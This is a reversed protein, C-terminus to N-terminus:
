RRLWDRRPEIWQSRPERYAPRAPGALDAPTEPASQVPGAQPSFVRRLPLQSVELELDFGMAELGLLAAYAMVACDLPENRLGATKLKWARRLRGKRDTTIEIKEAVLGRCFREDVTMPLHVYGPGPEAIGLRGYIREKAPDVRIPWLPVKRTVKSAHRPWVEGAGAQGKIAFIFARGGDPTPLRFRPGCYDYAAQTHHGGTDVCAGRIFEVGGRERPWTRRLYVDLADWTAPTAPDGHIVQHELLWSEKGTGWAYASVELRAPAEQVDVGATLLACPSPVEPVGGIQIRVERRALLGTEDLSHYQEEWWEALVTNKFVKLLEPHGQAEYWQRVMPALKRGIVAMAPLRFGRWGTCPATPRYKGRRIAEWRQRDEWSEGCSDCVYVASAFVPEGAGDKQWQVQPWRLAQEHGCRFCAVEYECRDTMEWLGDSRGGKYGPSTVTVKRANWFASTRVEALKVPDGETGASPPYRDVEDFLVVRVPRMALGAASNAGVLTIHGGPFVKHRITNGSDRSRVDSVKLGSALIMPALRDKSLAEAMEVNPEVVLIPSPEHDIYYGAAVLLLETKGAGQSCGIYVVGEVEPDTIADLVERQYPKSRWRGPEPSTGVPVIRRAEAWESGTLPSPPRLVSVIVDAVSQQRQGWM